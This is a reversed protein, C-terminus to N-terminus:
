KANGIRWSVEKNSQTGDTWSYNKKDKLKFIATYTGVNVASTDGSIEMITDSFGSWVPTLLSGTYTLTESQTPVTVPIKPTQKRYLATNIIM